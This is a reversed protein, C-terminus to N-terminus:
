RGRRARVQSLVLYKDRAGARKGGSRGAGALRFIPHQETLGPVTTRLSPAATPRLADAPVFRRGRRRVSPLQGRRILRWVTSVSVGLAHGAEVVSVLAGDSEM